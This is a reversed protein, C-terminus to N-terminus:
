LACGGASESVSMQEQQRTLAKDAYMKKDAQKFCAMIDQGNLEQYGCAVSLPNCGTQCESSLAAYFSNLKEEFQNEPIGRSVVCFEDGGIRYCFCRGSFANKLCRAIAKLAEDGATHGLNDNIYKLRNMDAVLIVTEEKWPCTRYEHLLKEFAARNGLGTLGDTYALEEYVCRRATDIKWDNIQHIVIIGLSIFFVLMGFKTARGADSDDGLYFLVIDLCCFIFPVVLAKYIYRDEKNQNTRYLVYYSRLIELFILPILVHVAVLMRTFHIIGTIQLIQSGLFIACSCYFLVTLIMDKQFCAFSQFFFLGTVPLLFFFSYLLYLIVPSNGSFLQITNAEFICWLSVNLGFLGLRMIRQRLVTDKVFIGIFLLSVGITLILIDLVLSLLGQKLIMYLFAAKTGTYIPPLFRASKDFAPQIEIRLIKGAYNDPLRIFQWASPPALPFPTSRNKDSVLMHEDGIYIDVWAQITYLILSNGDVCSEDLQRTIVVTDEGYADIVTPLETHILTDRYSVTFKGTMVSASETDLRDDAAVSFIEVCAAVIVVFIFFVTVFVFGVGPPNKGFLSNQLLLTINKKM